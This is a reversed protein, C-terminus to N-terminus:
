AVVEVAAVHRSVREEVRWRIALRFAIRDHLMRERDAVFPSPLYRHLAEQCRRDREDRASM